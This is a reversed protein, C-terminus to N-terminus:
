YAQISHIYATLNDIRQRAFAERRAPKWDPRMGTLTPGWIPMEASGHSVVRNEGTIAEVVRDRPFLGDNRKALTRLNPLPASLAEAAPGRGRGDEGHCSACLGRFLDVGDELAVDQWKAPVERVEPEQGAAALAAVAFVLSAVALVLRKAM